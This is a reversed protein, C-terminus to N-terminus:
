FLSLNLVSFFFRNSNWHKSPMISRIISIAQQNSYEQIFYDRIEQGFNLLLMWFVPLNFVRPWFKSKRWIKVSNSFTEVPFIFYEWSNCSFYQFSKMFNIIKDFLFPNLISFHSYLKKTYKLHFIGEKRSVLTSCKKYLNWSWASLWCIVHEVFYHVRGVLNLM